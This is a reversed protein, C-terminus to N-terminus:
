CLEKEGKKKYENMLVEGYACGSDPADITGYRFYANAPCGSTCLSVYKCKGCVSNEIRREKFFPNNFRNEWIELFSQERLNGLCLEEKEVQPCLYMKGDACINVTGHKHCMLCIDDSTGNISLHNDLLEIGKKYKLLDYVKIINLKLNISQDEGMKDILNAVSIFIDDLQPKLYAQEESCVKFKSVSIKKAKLEKGLAYLDSLENINESTVTYALIININQKTLYKTAKIAKEFNGDGRIKDHTQKTVGDLSVQISDFKPNLIQGLKIAVEETILTANTLIQITVNKSKLYELLKFIDKQLFPEGGTITFGIVDLEEVLFKALNLLEDISFDNNANFKEQDGYYFCHKCRLNCQSSVKLFIGYPFHHIYGPARDSMINHINIRKRDHPAEINFCKNFCKELAIDINKNNENETM